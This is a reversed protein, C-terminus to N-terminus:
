QMVGMRYFAQDMLLNLDNNRNVSNKEEMAIRMLKVCQQHNLSSNEVANHYWAPGNDDRNIVDKAYLILLDFFLMLLKINAKKTEDSNGGQFRYSIDYDILLEAKENINLYQKLMLVARKYSENNALEEMESLSTSVNSIFWLDDNSLNLEKAKNLKQEFSIPVFSIKTCRSIITPLIKTENNTTLVATVGAAPEELFKLMSNMASISANEFNLLVYVKNGEKNELATKSYKDQINDIDEKSISKENGDIIIFDSYKNDKVRRCTECDECAIDNKGCLISMALLLAAEKKCTGEPGSLLVASPVRKSKLANLFMEYVLPEEKKLVDKLM